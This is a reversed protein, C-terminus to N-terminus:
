NTSVWMKITNKSNPNKFTKVLQFSPCKALLVEYILSPGRGNTNIVFTLQTTLIGTMLENFAKQPFEKEIDLNGIERIGCCMPLEGCAFEIRKGDYTISVAGFNAEIEEIIDNTFTDFREGDFWWMKIIKKFAKAEARKVPTVKNLLSPAQQKKTQKIITM